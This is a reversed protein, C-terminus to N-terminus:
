GRLLWVLGALSVALVGVAAAMVLLDGLSWGGRRRSERPGQRTPLAAEAPAGSPASGAGTELPTVPAAVAPPDPPRPLPLPVEPGMAEDAAREIEALADIIPEELALVTRGIRIMNAARWLVEQDAALRTEGVWTGNKAARDRVFVSGDRRAVQIHERSSDPDSLALDCHAARGIAHVRGEEALVLTSGQDRGEVVRVKPTRDAGMAGMAQSVLALALDRTAAAVDRTVPGRDIRLELWLRGVRVRDGSRALRSTHPAIRVEGVFTGNTSGEDVIAFDAGQARISAHRHSVSADPLRVDCSSGRGIVVRQTGDFTLRSDQGDQHRLIVTIPM